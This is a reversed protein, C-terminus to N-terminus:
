QGSGERDRDGTGILRERIEGQLGECKDPSLGEETRGYMM